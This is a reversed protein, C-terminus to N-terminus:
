LADQTERFIYPYATQYANVGAAQIAGPDDALVVEELYYLNHTEVLDDYGPRVYPGRERVFVFYGVPLRQDVFRSTLDYNTVMKINDLIIEGTVDAVTLSWYGFRENWMVRLLYSSGSLEVGVTQDSTQAALPIRQILM